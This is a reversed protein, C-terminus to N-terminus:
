AALSACEVRMPAPSIRARHADLSTIEGSGSPNLGEDTVTSTIYLSASIGAALATAVAPHSPVLQAVALAGGGAATVTTLTSVNSRGADRGKRARRKTAPPPVEGLLEELLRRYKARTASSPLPGGYHTAMLFQTFGGAVSPSARRAAALSLAPIQSPDIDREPLPKHNASKTPM